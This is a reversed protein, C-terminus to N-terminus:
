RKLDRLEERVWSYNRIVTVLLMSAFTVIVAAAGCFIMALSVFHLIKLELLDTIFKNNKVYEIFIAALISCALVIVFLGTAVLHKKIDALADLLWKKEKVSEVEFSGSQIYQGTPDIASSQDSKTLKTM